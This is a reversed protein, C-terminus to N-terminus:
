SDEGRERQNEGREGAAHDVLGIDEVLGRARREGLLEGIEFGLGGVLQDHDRKLRQLAGRDLIEAILEAAM